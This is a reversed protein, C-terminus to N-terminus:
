WRSESATYSILKGDRHEIEYLEHYSLHEFQPLDVRLRIKCPGNQFIAFPEGDDGLSILTWMTKNYEILVYASTLLFTACILPILIKFLKSM